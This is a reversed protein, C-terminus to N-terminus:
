MERSAWTDVFFLIALCAVLEAFGVQLEPIGGVNIDGSVCLVICTDLCVFTGTRIHITTGSSQQPANQLAYLVDCKHLTYKRNGFM